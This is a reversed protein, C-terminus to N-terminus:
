NFKGIRGTRSVLHPDQWEMVYPIFGGIGPPSITDKDYNFFQNAKCLWGYPDEGALKPFDLQILRM